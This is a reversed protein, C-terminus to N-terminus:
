LENKIKLKDNEIKEFNENEFDEMRRKVFIEQGIMFINSTVWYLAIASPLNYAIVVIIVPM